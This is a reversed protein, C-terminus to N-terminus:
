LAAIGAVSSVVEDKVNPDDRQVNIWHTLQDTHRQVQTILCGESDTEYLKNRQNATSSTDSVLSREGRRQESPQGALPLFRAAAPHVLKDNVVNSM